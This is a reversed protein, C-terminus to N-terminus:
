MHVYNNMSASILIYIITKELNYSSTNLTSSTQHNTHKLLNFVLVTDIADNPISGKAAFRFIIVARQAIVIGSLTLITSLSTFFLERTLSKKFLM